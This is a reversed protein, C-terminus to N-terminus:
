KSWPMHFGGLGSILGMDEASAPRPGRVLAVSPSPIANLFVKLPSRGLHYLLLVRLEGGRMLVGFDCNASCCGDIFYVSFRGYLM